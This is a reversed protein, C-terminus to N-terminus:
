KKPIEFVSPSFLIQKVTAIDKISTSIFEGNLLAVEPHGDKQTKITLGSTKLAKKVDIIAKDYDGESNYEFFDSNLLSEIIICIDSSPFSSEEDVNDNLEKIVSQVWLNRTSGDHIYELDLETFFRTLQSTCTVTDRM